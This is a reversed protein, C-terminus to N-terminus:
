AATGADQDFKRRRDLHSTSTSNEIVWASAPWEVHRGPPCGSGLRDALRALFGPLAYRHWDELAHPTLAEHATVRMCALVALEAAIHPHEPWCGPVVDATRWAYTRNLWAVVDDLWPWLEARLRPSCSAPDWPRDLSLGGAPDLGVAEAQSLTELAGRIARPPTPFPPLLPHSTM